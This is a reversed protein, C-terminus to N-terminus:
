NRSFGYHVYANVKAAELVRDSNWAPLATLEGDTAGEAVQYIRKSSEVKPLRLARIRFVFGGLNSGIPRDQRRTAQGSVSSPDFSVHSEMVSNEMM